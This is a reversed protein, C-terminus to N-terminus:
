EQAHIGIPKIMPRKGSAERPIEAVVAVQVEVGSGAMAAQLRRELEGRQDEGYDARMPVISVVLRERTPQSLQYERLADMQTRLVPNLFTGYLRRGSPLVIFESARGALTQLLPLSRGCRCPEPALAGRDGIDYRILPTVRNGLDTILLRGETGPQVPRGDDDVAEIHFRYANVHLNEGAPLGAKVQEPCTQAVWVGFENAGYRDVVPAGFFDALLQEADPELTESDCIIVKPRFSLRGGASRLAQVALRMLTPLGVLATPQWRELLARLAEGDGDLILPLPVKRAGNLFLWLPMMRPSMHASRRFHLVTDGPNLGAWGALWRLTGRNFPLERADRYLHVPMGTTGSTERVDVYRRDAQGSLLVEPTQEKLVTKGLPPIRLFSEPTLTDPDVGATKLAVAYYPVTTAAFAVLDRLRRWTFDRAESPSSWEFAELRRRWANASRFVVREGVPAGLYRHLANGVSM